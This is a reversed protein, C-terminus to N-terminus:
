MANWVQVTTDSSASAIRKGDPSWAVGNVAGGSGFTFHGFYIDAHGRYTYVNNGTLADWVEVLGDASGSAIRKGNPSWAVSFVDTTHGTYTYVNQVSAVKWVEVTFSASGIALYAGDPSWAVSHVLGGHFGYYTVHKGTAADLVRVDGNGGIAISKGDPSWAM